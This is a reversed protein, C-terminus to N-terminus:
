CKVKKLFKLVLIKMKSYKWFNMVSGRPGLGFELIFLGPNPDWLCFNDM